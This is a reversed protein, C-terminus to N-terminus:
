ILALEGPSSEYNNVIDAMRHQKTLIADIALRRATIENAFTEPVQQVSGDVKFFISIGNIQVTMVNGLYPRYMPSLYMPIRKENRYYELLKKRRQEATLVEANAKQMLAQASEPTGPISPDVGMGTLSAMTKKSEAM